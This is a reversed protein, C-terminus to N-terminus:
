KSRPSLVTLVLQKFFYTSCLSEV